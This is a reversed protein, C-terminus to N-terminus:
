PGCEKIWSELKYSRDFVYTKTELRQIELLTNSLYPKSGEKVCLTIHPVKNITKIEKGLKNIPGNSITASYVPAAAVGLTDNYVFEKIWLDVSVIDILNIDNLETDIEGMNITMYHPLEGNKTYFNYGFQELNLSGRVMWKLLDSSMPTLVAATYM